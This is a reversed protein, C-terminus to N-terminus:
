AGQAGGDHDDDLPRTARTSTRSPTAASAGASVVPFDANRPIKAPERRNADVLLLAAAGSSKADAVLARLRAEDGSTRRRRRRAQPRDEAPGRAREGGGHAHAAAAEGAEERPPAAARRARRGRHDRRRRGRIRGLTVPELPWRAELARDTARVRFAGGVAYRGGSLHLVRESAVYDDVLVGAQAAAHCSPPQRRPGRGRFGQAELDKGSSPQDARVTKFIRNEPDLLRVVNKAYGSSAATSVHQEVGPVYSLARVLAGALPRATTIFHLGDDDVHELTTTTRKLIQNKQDERWKSKQQSSSVLTEDLDWVIKLPSAVNAATTLGIYSGTALTAKRWM